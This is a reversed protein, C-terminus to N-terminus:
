VYQQRCRVEWRDAGTIREIIESSAQNIDYRDNSSSRRPVESLVEIGRIGKRYEDIEKDLLDKMRREEDTNLHLPISDGNDGIEAEMYPEQMISLRDVDWGLFVKLSKEMPVGHISRRNFHRLERKSRCALEVIEVEYGNAHALDMYPLYQWKKEFTHVVYIRDVNLSFASIVSRIFSHDAQRVSTPEYQYVMGNETWKEFFRTWCVISYTAGDVNNLEKWEAYSRKGIGPVGRVIILKKDHRKFIKRINAFWYSLVLTFFSSGFVILFFDTFFDVTGWFYDFVENDNMVIYDWGVNIVGSFCLVLLFYLGTIASGYSAYILLSEVFGIAGLIQTSLYM